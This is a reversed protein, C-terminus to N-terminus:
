HASRLREGSAEGLVKRYISEVNGVMQATSYRERARRQGAAGMEASESPSELRRKLAETLAGVDRAPVIEGAGSGAVISTPGVSDSVVVPKGAAMGEIVAIGFAERHAPHVLVTAAALLDRKADDSVHGTLHIRDSLGLDAALRILEDHFDEDTMLAPGGCLVVHPPAFNGSLRSVAEVLERQGKSRQIRGILLLIPAGEAIGLRRRAAEADAGRSLADVDVGPMIATHPGLRPYHRLYSPEVAATGFITWAARLRRQTLYFFRSYASSSGTNVPEYVHWVCPVRRLSGALAGYLLLGDGNCHILEIRERSLIRALAVLTRAFSMPQRIRHPPLVYTRIGLAGLEDVLPGPMLCAAVCAYDNRDLGRLIDLMVVEQGGVIGVTNLFLIRRPRRM